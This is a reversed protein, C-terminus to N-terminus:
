LDESSVSDGNGFRDIDSVDKINFLRNFGHTTQGHHDLDGLASLAIPHEEAVRGKLNSVEDLAQQHGSFRHKDLLVDGFRVSFVDSGQDHAIFDHGAHASPCPSAFEAAVKM